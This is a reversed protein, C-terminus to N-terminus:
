RRVRQIHASFGSDIVWFPASAYRAEDPALWNVVNGIDTPSGHDCARASM